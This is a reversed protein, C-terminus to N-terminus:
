QSSTTKLECSSKNATCVQTSHLKLDMRKSRSNTNHVQLALNIANQQAKPTEQILGMTILWFLDIAVLSQICKLNYNSGHRYSHSTIRTEGRHLDILLLTIQQNNEYFSMSVTTCYCRLMVTSRQWGIIFIFIIFIVMCVPERYGIDKWYRVRVKGKLTKNLPQEGPQRKSCDAAPYWIVNGYYTATKQSWGWKYRPITLTLNLCGPTCGTGQTTM